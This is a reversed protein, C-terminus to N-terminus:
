YSTFRNASMFICALSSPYFSGDSFICPLSFIPSFIWWLFHMSSLINNTSIRFINSHRRQPMEVCFASSNSAFINPPIGVACMFGLWNPTHMHTHTHIHTHRVFFLLCVLISYCLHFTGCESLLLFHKAYKKDQGNLEM